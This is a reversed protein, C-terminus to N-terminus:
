TIWLKTSLCKVSDRLKTKFLAFDKKEISFFAGRVLSRRLVHLFLRVSYGSVLPFGTTIDSFVLGKSTSIENKNNSALNHSCCIYHLFSVFTTPSVYGLKWSVIDPNWDLLPHGGTCQPLMGRCVRTHWLCANWRGLMRLLTQSSAQCRM